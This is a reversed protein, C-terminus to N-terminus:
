PMLGLIKNQTAVILDTIDVGDWSVILSSIDDETLKMAVCEGASLVRVGDNYIGVASVDSGKVIEDILCRLEAIQHHKNKDM